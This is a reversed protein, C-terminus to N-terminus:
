RQNRPFFVSFHRELHATLEAEYEATNERLTKEIRGAFRAQGAGDRATLISGYTVHLVQRLDDNGAGSQLLRAIAAGDLGMLDPIKEPDASLEYTARDRAFQDFSFKFIEMFLPRDHRAVIKLDELYYTGATKLHFNDKLVKAVIPYIAFKDSGSHVCIRFNNKRGAEAIRQLYIEFDRTDSVKKGNKIASYYDIAKEFYGPFRPAIENIVIQEEKLVAILKVVEDISTTTEGEDLSIETTFNRAGKIDRTLGYLEVVQGAVAEIGKDLEATVDYTFHTCGARAAATVEKANRLHDGDAGWPLKLDAQFASLTASDIVDQFSRGTREIERASQQALMVHLGHRAAFRAQVINGLRWPPRYGLGIVPGQAIVSPKTFPHNNRLEAASEKM